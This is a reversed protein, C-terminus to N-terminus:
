LGFSVGLMALRELTADTRWADIEAASPGDPEDVDMHGSLALMVEALRSSPGEPRASPRPGDWEHEAEDASLDTGASPVPGAELQLDIGSM